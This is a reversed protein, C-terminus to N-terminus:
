ARGIQVPVVTGILLVTRTLGAREIHHELLRDVRHFRDRRFFPEVHILVLQLRDSLAISSFLGAWCVDAWCVDACCVDGLWVRVCSSPRCGAIVSDTPWSLSTIRPLYSVNLMMLSKSMATQNKIPLIRNKKSYVTVSPVHNNTKPLACSSRLGAIRKVRRTCKRRM